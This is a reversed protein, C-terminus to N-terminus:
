DERVYWQGGIVVHQQTTDIYEIQCRKTLTDVHILGFGNTWKEGNTYSAERKHGSGFQHWECVGRDASFFTHVEHSHHHGNFGPMGFNAGEPFHHAIFTDYVPLWNRRLEAKMDTVTLTALDAPAVYNVEYEDLGLLKSVTFGHLDSLIAKMAPTAESLHRLLRYEHNGEVLILEANPAAKRLDALFKHVWKIRGVVDWSKPDVSYKGFEPLDFLDGNIIIKAPQARKATDIFLMRWFPDCEIDHVDCGALVTQFRNGQPRLFKKGFNMKELNMERYSELSAHKSVNLEMQRAHRSLKIDAQRKFEEFTGFHLNWASESLSSNNRFFNRTIIQKPNAEAFERLEKICEERTAKTRKKTNESLPQKSKKAM